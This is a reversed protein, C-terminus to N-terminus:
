KAFGMLQKIRCSERYLASKFAWRRLEPRYSMIFRDIRCAMILMIRPHMICWLIARIKMLM